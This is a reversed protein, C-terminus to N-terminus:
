SGDIIKRVEAKRQGKNAHYTTKSRRQRDKKLQNELQAKQRLREQRKELYARLKKKSRAIEKPVYIWTGPAVKIKTQRKFRKQRQQALQKAKLYQPYSIGEM